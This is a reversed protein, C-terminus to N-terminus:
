SHITYKKVYSYIYVLNIKIKGIIKSKEKADYIDKWEEIHMEKDM